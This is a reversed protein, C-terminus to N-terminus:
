PTGGGPPRPGVAICAGARLGCGHLGGGALMGGGPLRASALRLVPFRWGAVRRFSRKGARFAGLPFSRAVSSAATGTGGGGRLGCGAGSLEGHEGAQRLCGRLDPFAETPAASGAGPAHILLEAWSRGGLWSLSKLFISM